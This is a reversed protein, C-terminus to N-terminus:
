GTKELIVAWNAHDFYSKLTKINKVEELLKELENEYFVHYYRKYVKTNKQENIEVDEPKETDLNPMKKNKEDYKKQLNWPVFIDQKDFKKEDQEMAWVYILAKGGVKITRIIEEIARIRKKPTSFHHIVAISIAHDLACSRIPLNQSDAVFVDGGREQCIKLLNFSIDSGVMNLRHDNAFLYKGNGCGIDGVISGEQLSELFEVVRPWPKYRTNSFHDAIKDYVEYVYEKELNGPVNVQSEEQLAMKVQLKESEEETNSIKQNTQTQPPPWVTCNETTINKDFKWKQKDFGQSDCFVPYKCDCPTSRITRFTQSVRRSRFHLDGEVRDVKRTAISHFWAYRAEDTFIAACRPPQYVHELIDDYRRFTMVTGSLQSLSCFVPMFASHTDVHPPIGDGPKYDNITLQDLPNNDNHPLCYANLKSIVPEMHGPLEGKKEEKDVNNKLDGKYQFDYGYHQVQRHKINEWPNQDIKTILDLEQEKTVFDHILILGPISTKYTADPIDNQNGKGFENLELKSYLFFIFREQNKKTASDFNLEIGHADKNETFVKCRKMLLQCDEDTEFKVAGYSYGPYVELRFKMGLSKLFNSITSFDIEEGLGFHLVILTKSCTQSILDEYTKKETKVLTQIGKTVKKNMRLELKKQAKEENKKRKQTDELKTGNNELTEQNGLEEM